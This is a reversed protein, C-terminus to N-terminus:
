RRKKRSGSAHPTKGLISGFPLDDLYSLAEAFTECFRSLVSSEPPYVGSLLYLNKILRDPFECRGASDARRLYHSFVPAETGGIKGVAAPQPMLSAILDNGDKPPLIKTGSYKAREWLTRKRAIPLLLSKAKCYVEDLM